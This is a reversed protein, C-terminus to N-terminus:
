LNEFRAIVERWYDPVRITQQTAYDYTVITTAGSAAELGTDMDRITYEMQMSKNGIRSIRAGVQADTHFYLPEKFTVHADAIIIGIQMFSQKGDFLGLHILYNVRAQEFYTLYRANNVHGQPDLDAYRIEIPQFFRFHTM